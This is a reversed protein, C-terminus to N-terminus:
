EFFEVVYDGLEQRLDAKQLTFIWSTCLESLQFAAWKLADLSTCHREAVSWARKVVDSISCYFEIHSIVAPKTDAERAQPWHAFFSIQRQRIKETVALLAAFMESFRFGTEREALNDIRRLIALVVTECDSKLFSNRQYITQLRVKRILHAREDEEPYRSQQMGSFGYVLKPLENFFRQMNSPAAPIRKRPATQMLALAHVLEVEAIESPSLSVAAKVNGESILQKKAGLTVLVQCSTKAAIEFPDHTLLFKKLFQVAQNFIQQWEEPKAALSISPHDRITEPDITGVGYIAREPWQAEIAKSAESLSKTGKRNDGSRRRAHTM